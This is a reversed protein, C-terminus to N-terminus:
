FIAKVRGFRKAPPIWDRPSFNTAADKFYARTFPSKQSHNKVVDKTEDAILILVGAKAVQIM